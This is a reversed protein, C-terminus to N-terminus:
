YYFRLIASFYIGTYTANMDLARTFQNTLVISDTARSETLPTTKGDERIYFSAAKGNWSGSFSPVTHNGIMWGLQLFLQDNVRYNISGELRLSIGTGRLKGSQPIYELQSSTFGSSAWRTENGGFGLGAELGWNKSLNWLYYYSLLLYDTSIDFNLRTLYGDSTVETLNARSYNLSGFVFGFRQNDSFGMRVMGEIFDLNRFGDTKTKSFIGPQFTSTFNELNNEFRDKSRFGPGARLGFEIISDEESHSGLQTSASINVQASM